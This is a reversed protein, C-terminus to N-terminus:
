VVLNPIGLLEKCKCDYRKLNSEMESGDIGRDKWVTNGEKGDLPNNTCSQHFDHEM